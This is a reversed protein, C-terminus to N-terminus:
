RRAMSSRQSGSGLGNSREYIALFEGLRANVDARVAERRGWASLRERLEASALVENIKEALAPASGAACLGAAGDGDLVARYGDNAAAVVPLGAAMAEALVLGYSEGYPSPACFLDAEGYLALKAEDDLAGTFRAGVGKERALGEAAAREPGDGCVILRAGPVRALAEILLLIGKRPELRGVFLVTREDKAQRAVRAYPSLNICAPLRYRACGARGRLHREVSASVAIMADLRHSLRRSLVTYLARQLAGSWSPPPTDHFTAVRTRALPALARLAQWPMFPTWPTHVHLVDIGQRALEDFAGRPAWTLEFGTGHMAWPRRRGVYRVGPETGPGPAVVGVQHGAAALARALDRVHRQVGGPRAFDYPCVQLVKM